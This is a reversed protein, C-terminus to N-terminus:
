QTGFSKRLSLSFRRLRPDGYTSYGSAGYSTIAIVPPKKNFVNQVGASIRMGNMWGSKFDYSVFLDSYAQRPIRRAGQFRVAAAIANAGATTRPDTTAYVNYSNYFQTNWSITASGLQWDFGGNGQWELPGNNNGTYNLAPAAVSIQKIADPQWTGLAYLRLRGADGTDFSYDVQFDIAQYLARYLNVSSTDLSVIRGLYGAPDGPQPAANRVIRGPFLTPNALLFAASVSGIEDDKKIRLYDASLRLGEIPTLVAGIALSKSREPKLTANGLGIISQYPYGEALNGRGPDPTTQSLTLGTNALQVVSPPLFGTAYSARLMVGEIPSWRGAITFNTSKFRSSIPTYSPFPTAPDATTFSYSTLPASQTLYSDHRVAGRLELERILPINQAASILPFAIEGYGSNTRQFRPSYLTYSPARTSTNVVQDRTKEITFAERQFALTLRASGGPLKFLPGSARAVPNDFESDYPGTIATPATFIYGGYDIPGRLPDLVPKGACTAATSAQLGCSVAFADLVTSYGVSTASSWSKNYELNLAWKGPLRLITGTNLRHQKSDRAYPFDYNPSPFTVTIQQQFPNNPATAALTASFPIQSVGYTTGNNQLLSYDVFIDLWDAFKRRVGVNFSALESSTRIGRKSGSYDEPMDLNFRGAGRLLAAGNDSAVGGYGLPVNTLNSGLSGGGYQPDLTLVAGTTSRINIGNSLPPTANGLYPSQNAYGRNIGRQVLERRDGVRLTGARSVSGSFMVMTRGGELALGGSVDLRGMPAKFDGTDQYTASLDVGRYDSRLIINIVGGVASGGYIGGASSPLVEIREIAAVPIGNIDSQAAGTNAGSRPALRRGNVLILTQNSGLGRLNFSSFPSGVGTTQANSGGFGANQPLRTRLFEEVDTAQSAAIDQRSFVVYPQDDDESRRIDANLSLGGIVLIEAKGTADEDASEDSAPVGGAQGEGSQAGAIRVIAVAGSSDGRVTFGSGALLARLAADASLNGKAGRSRAARVEDSKYIVQRGSQRAYADLAAKLSGAPVNYSRTQASAPTAVAVICVSAALAAALKRRYTM